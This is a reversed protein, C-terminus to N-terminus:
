ATIAIALRFWNLHNGPDPPLRRAIEGAGRAILRMRKECLSVALVPTELLQPMVQNQIVKELLAFHDPVVWPAQARKCQFLKKRGGLDQLL